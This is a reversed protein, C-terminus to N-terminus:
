VCIIDTYVRSVTYGRGTAETSYDRISMWKSTYGLTLRLSGWMPLHYIAAMRTYMGYNRFKFMESSLQMCVLAFSSNQIPCESLAHMSRTALVATLSFRQHSLSLTFPSRKLLCHYM